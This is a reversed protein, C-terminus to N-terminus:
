MILTVVVCCIVFMDIIQMKCEDLSNWGSYLLIRHLPHKISDKCLIASLIANAHKINIALAKLSIIQCGM